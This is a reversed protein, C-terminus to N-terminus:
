AKSSTGSCKCGNVGCEAGVHRLHFCEGCCPVHEDDTVMEGARVGVVANWLPERDDWDLSQAILERAFGHCKAQLGPLLARVAALAGRGGPEDSAAYLAWCHAIAGLARCDQGTLMALSGPLQLRKSSWEDRSCAVIWERWNHPANLDKARTV